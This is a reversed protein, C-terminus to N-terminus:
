WPIPPRLSRADFFPLVTPSSPAEAVIGFVVIVGSGVSISIYSGQAKASWWSGVSLGSCHHRDLEVAAASAKGGCLHRRNQPRSKPLALAM